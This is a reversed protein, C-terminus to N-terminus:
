VVIAIVEKIKKIDSEDIVNNACLFKGNLNCNYRLSMYDNRITDPLELDDIRKKIELFGRFNAFKTYVSNFDSNEVISFFYNLDHGIQKLQFYSKDEKYYIDQIKYSFNPINFEKICEAKIYIEIILFMIHLAISKNSSSSLTSNLIKKWELYQKRLVRYLSNSKDTENEIIKKTLLTDTDTIEFNDLEQIEFENNVKEIKM